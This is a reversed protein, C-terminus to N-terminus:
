VTKLFLFIQGCYVQDEKQNSYHNTYLVMELFHGIVSESFVRPALM